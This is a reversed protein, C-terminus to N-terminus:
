FRNERTGRACKGCSKEKSFQCCLRIKKATTTGTSKHFQHAKEAMKQLAEKDKAAFHRKLSRLLSGWFGNKCDRIATALPEVLEQFNRKEGPPLWTLLCVKIHNPPVLVMKV